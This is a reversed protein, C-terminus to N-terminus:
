ARAPEVVDPSAMGVFGTGRPHNAQGGLAIILQDLLSRHSSKDGDVDLASYCAFFTVKVNRLAAFGSPVPALNDDNSGFGRYWKDNYKLKTRTRTGADNEIPRGHAIIVLEDNNAVKALCDILAGGVVPHVAVGDMKARAREYGEAIHICGDGPQAICIVRKAHLPLAVSALLLLMLVKSAKM